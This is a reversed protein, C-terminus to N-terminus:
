ESRRNRRESKEITGNRYYRGETQSKTFKNVIYDQIYYTVEKNSPKRTVVRMSQHIDVELSDIYYNIIEVKGRRVAKSFGTSQDALKKNPDAGGNVLVKVTELNLSSAEIM